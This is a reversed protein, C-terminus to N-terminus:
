PSAAGVFWQRRMEKGFMPPIATELWVKGAESWLSASAWLRQLFCCCVVRLRHPESISDIRNDVVYMIVCPRLVTLVPVTHRHRKSMQGIEHYQVCTHFVSLLHAASGHM